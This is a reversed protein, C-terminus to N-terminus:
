QPLATAGPCFSFGLNKDDYLENVWYTTGVYARLQCMQTPGIGLTQELFAEAARRAEGIPEATLSIAFSQAETDFFVTFNTTSAAGCVGAPTCYGLSGALLYRTPNAPDAVTVGNDIFNSVGV